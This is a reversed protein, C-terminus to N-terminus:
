NRYSVGIAEREPASAVTLGDPVELAPQYTEPDTQCRILAAAEPPLGFIGNPLELLLATQPDVADDTPL